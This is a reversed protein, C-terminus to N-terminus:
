TYEVANGLATKPKVTVGQSLIQRDYLRTTQKLTLIFSVGNTINAGSLSECGVGLWILDAPSAESGSSMTARYDDDYEIDNSGVVTAVNYGKMITVKDLGGKASLVRRQSLDNGAESLAQSVSPDANTNTIYVSVPFAENNVAVISYHYRVVRYLSFLSQYETFGTAAHAFSVPDPCWISNPIFRKTVAPAAGSNTFNRIFLFEVDLETPIISRFSTPVAKKTIPMTFSNGQRRQRGRGRRKRPFQKKNSRVKKQTQM